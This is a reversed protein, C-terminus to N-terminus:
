HCDGGLLVYIASTSRETVYQEMFEGSLKKRLKESKPDELGVKAISNLLQTHLKTLSALRKAAEIPDPGTDAAEEDDGDESESKKLRRRLRSKPRTKRSRSLTPRTRTSSASSSIPWVGAPAM